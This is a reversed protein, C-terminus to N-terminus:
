PREESEEIQRIEVIRPKDTEVIRGIGPPPSPLARKSVSMLRPRRRRERRHLAFLACIILSAAIASIMPLREQYWLVTIPSPDAIARREELVLLVQHEQTTGQKVTGDVTQESVVVADLSLTTNLHYEGTENGTVVVRYSGDDPEPIAIYQPHSELGSYYANPIEQLVIWQANQLIAGVRRGSPDAVLLGVNSGGSTQLIKKYLWGLISQLSNKLSSFFSKLKSIITDKHKAILVGISAGLTCVAFGGLPTFILSSIIACPLIAVLKSSDEVIIDRLNDLKQDAPMKDNAILTGITGLDLGFSIVDLYEGYESLIERAQPSFHVVINYYKQMSAAKLIDKVDKADSILELALSVDNLIVQLEDPKIFNATASHDQNMTITLEPKTNEFASKGDITWFWFVRDGNRDPAHLTVVSGSSYCGAGDIKIGSPASSTELCFRQAQQSVGITVVNSKATAGSWDSVLLSVYYISQITYIHTPNQSSDSSQDGFDWDYGYPPSGGSVISTFSVELPAQGSVPQASIMVTLVQPAGNVTLVFNTSHTVWGGTGTITLPYTGPQASPHTGIGFDIQCIPTCSEGTLDETGVASPLGSISLSVSQSSGSLLTLFVTGAPSLAKGPDVSGSDPSVSISFDFQETGIVTIKVQAPSYLHNRFDSAAQAYGYNADFVFWLYYVGPSSPATMSFSASGTTGPYGPPVDSYLGWYQGQSPPWDGWSSVFMLQDIESPNPGQWIQYDATFSLTQEPQVSLDRSGSVSTLLARDVLSGDPAVACAPLQYLDGVVSGCSVGGGQVIIKIHAPASLQSRFDSAAQAYGYNADFVFWLYYTGSVSPATLQFSASGSNGPFSTPIGDYIGFYYESPPPWDPAWSAIFMLQDIENPNNGQSIQYSVSFSLAQGPQANISQGGSVSTLLARSVQSGDPALACAPTPYISGAPSSCRTQPPGNVTLLFITRRTIEGGTAIITLSYTGPQASPFTGIGFDIVCDPSCSKDSLDQTGVSPPLGTISLSVSQTSGSVLKLFITGAPTLANGADVSGSSPSVSISFDFSPQAGGSVDIEIPGSGGLRSAFDAAAQDYGYNADFVFWLYYTGPTLPATLSFSASGSTGPSSPPVGNYVGWYYGQSPPWSPTWSAIFMLQDIEYPNNGQWIQYSVTFSLDQGPQAVIVQGGSISTLLARGVQSGDPAVAPAPLGYQSPEISATLEAYSQDSFVTSLYRSTDGKNTARLDLGQVCPLFSSMVFITLVLIPVVSGLPRM